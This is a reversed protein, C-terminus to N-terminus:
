PDLDWLLRYYATREADPEVGYAALLTEEWGPGYTWISSWTTTALDAGRDAIGLSGLDVHGTCSGDAAILTNPACADGHCVVLRDTPPTADLLDFAEDLTLHQHEEGWKAPDIRGQADRGRADAIRSEASWTFPCRDVPLTDHLERLGSGIATVATEPDSKWRASIASEGPV